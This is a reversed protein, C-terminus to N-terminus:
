DDGINLYMNDFFEECIEFFDECIEFFTKINMM